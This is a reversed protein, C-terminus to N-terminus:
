PLIEGRVEPVIITQVVAGSGDVVEIMEPPQPMDVEVLTRIKITIEGSAGPVAIMEGRLFNVGARLTVRQIVGEAEVMHGDVNIYIVAPDEARPLRLGV